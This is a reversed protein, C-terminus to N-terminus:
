ICARGWRECEWGSSLPWHDPDLAIAFGRLSRSSFSIRGVVLTSFSSRGMSSAITTGEWSLSKAPSASRELLKRAEFRATRDHVFDGLIILREPRYDALLELLRGYDFGNGLFSDAMGGSSPQARLRFTFRRHRAVKRREHFLALRGDLLVHDAVFARSSAVFPM